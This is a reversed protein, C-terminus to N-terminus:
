SQEFANYIARIAQPYDVSQVGIIINQESSGQDIMRVNIGATALAGFLRAAVGVHHNMGKGVTAILAMGPILAIHHPQLTAKLEEVIQTARGEQLYEDAVVVSM